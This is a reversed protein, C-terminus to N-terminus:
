NDTAIMVIGTVVAAAGAVALVGGAITAGAAAEAGGLVCVGVATVAAGGAVMGAGIQKKTIATGSSTKERGSEISQVRAAYINQVIRKLLEVREKSFNNVATVMQEDMYDKNWSTSDYNLEEGDHDDFLDPLHRQAYQIMDDFSQLTPDAVMSDKLMIRVRMMRKEDVADKFEPSIAM